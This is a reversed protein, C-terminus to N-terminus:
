KLLNIFKERSESWEIIGDIQDKFSYYNDHLTCYELAVKQYNQLVNKDNSDLNDQDIKKVIDKERFKIEQLANPELINISSTPDAYMKINTSNIMKSIVVMAGGRLQSHPMVYIYVPQQYNTLERVINSGHTLIQSLMDGTGGSFGRLNVLFLLPLKEVNSEKIVQAVKQSSEPTLINGASHKIISKSTIDGPDVPITISSTQNNCVLYTLPKGGIRAKGTLISQGWSSFLEFISNTDFLSEMMQKVDYSSNNPLYEMNKPVFYKESKMYSLWKEINQVAELDTDVLLHSTSNIKMIDVGGIENNDKYLKKNLVKNLAQAGTLIIPSGRKQITRVGIKTLYAGIGVSRGTVYTLTFIEDFSKATESAILASGNLNKVGNSKIGKIKYYSQNEIIVRKCKVQDKNKKYDEKELYLFEYGQNIDNNKWKIKFLDKVTNNIELRAGSNASIYIRPLKNIRAYKSANYFLLDDQWSFSGANVTIDNAILVFRVENKLIIDFAVMALDNNGIPREVFELDDDGKLILEKKIVYDFEEVLDYIFTTNCKKAYDRRKDLFDTKNDKTSNNIKNIVNDGKDSNEVKDLFELNFNSKIFQNINDDSDIKFLLGNKEVIENEDVQYNIKGSVLTNVQVIMKMIELTLVPTDKEVYDGSKYLLSNVKGSFTSKLENPNSPNSIINNKCCMNFKTEQEDINHYDITYIKSKIFLYIKNNLFKYQLKYQKEEQELIIYQNDFSIILNYLINEKVSEIDYKFNMYRQYDLHGNKLLEDKFALDDQYRKHARLIMSGLLEISNPDQLHDISELWNVNHQEKQFVQNTMITKLFNATNPMDSDINLNELMLKMKILAEERSKGWAVLHGFQNDVSSNIQSNNNVSFYGWNDRSCNFEINKIYGTCPKFKSYPDESNIRCSVAHGNIKPNSLEPMESLKIGSAIQIQISPLNLDFITETVIHEVQLRPNIEMFSVTYNDLDDKELLFEATCLGKLGVHGVIKIASEEMIKIINTPVFSAPAEEVLKQRRRQLSCDRSGLAMVQDGDSVIQIEIHKCSQALKMVFIGGSSENKIQKITEELDEIKYLPRIGKGGGGNSSKLIVPLGIEKSHHEIEKLDFCEKKSWALQPVNLQDAMTMCEIKDGLLKLSHASPGIFIINNEELKKSFDSEESLYGWGPWVSEINNNKCIEIIGDIDMFINLNPSFIHYDLCDIYKYNSIMDLETVIGWLKIEINKQLSWERVSTIFKIAPLGRNAILINKIIINSM